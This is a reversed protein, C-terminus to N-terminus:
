ELSQNLHKAVQQKEVEAAKETNGNKTNQMERLIIAHQWRLSDFGVSGVVLPSPHPSITRPHYCFTSPFTAWLGPSVQGAGEREPWRSEAKCFDASLLDIPIDTTERQACEFGRYNTKKIRFQTHMFAM